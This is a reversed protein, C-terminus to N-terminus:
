PSENIMGICQFANHDYRVMVIKVHVPTHVSYKLRTRADYFHTYQFELNPSMERPILIDVGCYRCFIGDKFVHIITSLYVDDVKPTFTDKTYTITYICQGSNRAIINTMTGYQIDYVDLVYGSRDCKGITQTLKKHISERINGLEHPEIVVQSITQHRTIPNM